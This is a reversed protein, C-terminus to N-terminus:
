QHWGVRVQGGSSGITISVCPHDEPPRRRPSSHLNSRPSISDFDFEPHHTPLARVASHHILATRGGKAVARQRASQAERRRLRRFSSFCRLTQRRVGQCGLRSVTSSLRHGPLPPSSPMASQWRAFETEGKRNEVVRGEDKGRQSRVRPPSLRSPGFCGACSPRSARAVWIARWKQQHHRSRSASISLLSLAPCCLSM